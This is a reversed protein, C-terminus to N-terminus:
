PMKRTSAFRCSIVTPSVKITSPLLVTTDIKSSVNDMTVGNPFPTRNFGATFPEKKVIKAENEGEYWFEASPNIPFHFPFM